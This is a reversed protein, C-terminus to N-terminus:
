MCLIDAGGEGLLPEAKLAMLSRSVTAGAGAEAGDAETAPAAAGAGAIAEIAVCVSGGSDSSPM